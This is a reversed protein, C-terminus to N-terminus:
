EYVISRIYKAILNFLEIDEKKTFEKRGVIRIRSLGIDLYDVFKPPRSMRVCRNKKDPKIEVIRFESLGEQLLMDRLRSDANLHQALEGGHWHFDVLERRILGKRILKIKAELREELGEINALVLYQYTYEIESLGTDDGGMNREVQILDFNQDELKINGLVYGSAFPGKQWRPGLSEPSGSELLSAKIGIQQLHECLEKMLGEEKILDRIKKFISM